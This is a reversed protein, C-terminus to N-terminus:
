WPKWLIRPPTSYAVTVWEGPQLPITHGTSTFVATDNIDVESVTGSDIFVFVNNPQNNTWMCPTAGVPVSTLALQNSSATSINGNVHLTCQPSNTGIGVNGIFSGSYLNDSNTLVAMGAFVNTATFLNTDDLLAVNASLRADPVTGALSAVSLNTLGSGDGSLVGRLSAANLSTLGAGNGSISAVTMNGSGDTSVAGHDSTYQQAITVVGNTSLQLVPECGHASGWTGSYFGFTSDNAYAGSNGGVQWGLAAGSHIYLPTTGSPSDLDLKFGQDPYFTGIGVTGASMALLVDGNTYAQLLTNAGDYSYLGFSGDSSLAGTNPGLAWGQGTGATISIPSVGSPVALMEPFAPNGTGIGLNGGIVTVNTITGNGPWSWVPATYNVSGFPRTVNICTIGDVVSAGVTGPYEARDCPEITTMRQISRGDELSCNQVVVHRINATYNTGPGVYLWTIGDTETVFGSLHTPAVTSVLPGSNGGGTVLLSMKWRNTGIQCVDGLQYTKGSSWNTWSGTLLRLFCANVAGPWHSVCNQITIAQDDYLDLVTNWWDWPQICFSDDLATVDCGTFTVNQCGSEVAFGNKAGSYVCGSVTVNTACDFYYGALNGGGNTVAVNSLSLGKVHRFSLEGWVACYVDLNNVDITIDRIAISTNWGGGNAMANIFVSAYPASKRLVVGPVGVVAQNDSLVISTSMPYIGPRGISAYGLAALMKSLALVNGQGTNSVSFGWAAADNTLVGSSLALGSGDGQAVAALIGPLASASINTLGAGSGSIQGTLNAANLNTLASGDGIHGGVVVNAPNTLMAVGQVVLGNGGDTLPGPAQGLGMFPVTLALMILLKKMCFHCSQCLMILAM